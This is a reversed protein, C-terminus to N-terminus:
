LPTGGLAEKFEREIEITFIAGEKENRASLKGRMSKEIILKSMYLGIGTGENQEKTSVYPEFIREIPEIKIGGGNDEVRLYISKEDSELTIRIYGEARGSALIADKANSLLNLVVQEYESKYGVISEDSEIRVDVVINHHIIAEQIIRLVEDVSNQISFRKKDKNPMFFNRFDDITHSMYEVINEAEVCKIEMSSKDLMDRNYKLKLTMLLASLQSLPQRWQHAINSIMEGLAIFKSKQILLQEQERNKQIEEQVRSELTHNLTELEQAKQQVQAHYSKLFREIRKGLMLAFANAVLAFLLFIIIASTAEMKVKEQFQTKAAEIEQDIDDLYVGAAIIINWPQYLKFYSVKPRALKTGPKKYLYEVFSYGHDLIDHLFIKRFAKGNEDTYADSIYEGELDPRNPNILMKAFRDGGSIHNIEYVFIYNHEQGGYRIHRIWEFAEQKLAALDNPTDSAARHLKFEIFSIISDVERQLLARKNTEFTKRTDEIQADLLEYQKTIFFYGNFLMLSTIIFVTSLTIIKSINSEKIIKM